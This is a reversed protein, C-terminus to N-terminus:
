SPRWAARSARSSPLGRGGRRSVPARTLRPRGGRRAHRRRDPRVGRRWAAAHAETFRRGGPCAADRRAGRPVDRLARRRRRLRRSAARPRAAPREGSMEDDLGAVALGLASVFMAGQADLDGKFLRKLSPDLVFLKEYFARGLGKPIPRLSEFSEKVLAIEERTM